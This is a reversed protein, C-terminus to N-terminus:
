SRPQDGPSSLIPHGGYPPSARARNCRPKGDTEREKEGERKVRDKEEELYVPIRKGSLHCIFSVSLSFLPIIFQVQPIQAAPRSIVWSKPM